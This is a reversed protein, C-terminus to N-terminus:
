GRTKSGEAPYGLSLPEVKAAVIKNALTRVQSAYQPDTTLIEASLSLSWRQYAGDIAVRAVIPVETSWVHPQGEDIWGQMTPGSRIVVQRIQGPPITVKRERLITHSQNISNTPDNMRFVAGYSEEDTVDDVREAGFEVETTRSGENKLTLICGILIRLQAYKPLQLMTMPAIAGPHAYFENENSSDVQWRDYAPIVEIVTVSPAFTELRSKRAEEKAANAIRNARFGLWIGLGSALLAVISIWIM